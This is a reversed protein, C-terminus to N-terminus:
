SFLFKMFDNLIDVNSFVGINFQSQTMHLMVEAPEGKDYIADYVAFNQNGGVLPHGEITSPYTTIPKGDEGLVKYTDDAEDYRLVVGYDSAKDKEGVVMDAPVVKTSCLGNFKEFEEIVKAGGSFAVTKFNTTNEEIDWFSNNTAVINVTDLGKVGTVSDFAKDM